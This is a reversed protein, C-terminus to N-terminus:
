SSTRTQWRQQNRMENRRDRRHEVLLEYAREAGKTGGLSDLEGDSSWDFDFFDDALANGFYTETPMVGRERAERVLDGALQTLGYVGVGKTLLHTRPTTWATEYTAAVSRWFAKLIQAVERPDNDSMEARSRFYRRVALKMLRLSAARKMGVTVRGGKSIRGRWPSDDDDALCMSIFLCPDEKCLDKTLRSSNYDILSTNLGKAKSNITTFVEREEEASLGIYCMFALQVEVDVLHGLRHQCDVQSFHLGPSEIRLKATAGAGPRVLQIAESGARVNLTLPITTAGPRQIYRRFDRSHPGHFRRQYGTAADEDLVDAFSHSALLSAPATGLVVERDGCRGLIVEIELPYQRTM